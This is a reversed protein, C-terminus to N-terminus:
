RTTVPTDADDTGARRVQGPTLCWPVAAEIADRSAGSQVTM